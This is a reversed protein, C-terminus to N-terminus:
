HDLPFAASKETKLNLSLTDSRNAAESTQQRNIKELQRQIQELEAQIEGLQGQLSHAKSYWAWFERFSFFLTILLVGTLGILLNQDQSIPELSRILQEWRTM